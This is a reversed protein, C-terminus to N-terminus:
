TAHIGKGITDRNSKSDSDRACPAKIKCPDLRDGLVRELFQTTVSHGGM